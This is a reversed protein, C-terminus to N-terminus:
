PALLSVFWMLLGMLAFLLSLVQRAGNAGTLKQDYDAQWSPEAGSVVGPTFKVRVALYDGPDLTETAVATVTRRDPSVTLDAAVGDTEVVYDEGDDQLNFTVGEPLQLTVESSRIVYPHDDHVAMWWVEDGEEYRRVAGEVTYAINFTRNANTTPPFYWRVELDGDETYQARFTNASSTRNPQYNVDGEWVEINTIDDLRDTPIVRFGYTFPGGQFAMDLTEVVRLDGNPLVIVDADYDTAYVSKAQALAPFPLWLLVTLFLWSFIVRRRMLSGRKVTEALEIDDDFLEHLSVMLGLDKAEREELEGAEVLSAFAWDNLQAPITARRLVAEIQTTWSSPRV